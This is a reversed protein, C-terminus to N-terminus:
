RNIHEKKGHRDQNNRLQTRFDRLSKHIVRYIDAHGAGTLIANMNGVAAQNFVSNSTITVDITFKILDM